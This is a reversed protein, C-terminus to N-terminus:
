ALNSDSELHPDSCYDLLVAFSHAVVLTRRRARATHWLRWCYFLGTGALIPWGLSPLYSFRDAVRYPDFAVIGSVPILLVVYFLWAALGAPWRRRAIFLGVSVALVFVGSLLIPLTWLGTFPHLPYLPSLGTPLLTKWPYFALSSVVQTFRPLLRYNVMSYMTGWQEKALVALASRHGM